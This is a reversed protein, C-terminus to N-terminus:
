GARLVEAPNTRSARRAPLFFAVLAVLGVGGLAAAFMVPDRAGVGYIISALVGAGLLAAVAGIIAGGIVVAVGQGLVLRVVEGPAAGLAVRVAIE